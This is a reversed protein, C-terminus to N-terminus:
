TMGNFHRMLWDCTGNHGQWTYVVGRWTEVYENTLKNLVCYDYDSILVCNSSYSLVRCMANDLIVSTVLGASMRKVAYQWSVM